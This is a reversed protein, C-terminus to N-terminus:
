LRASFRGQCITRYRIMILETGFSHLLLQIM